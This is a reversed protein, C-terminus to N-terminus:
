HIMEIISTIKEAVWNVDSWIFPIADPHLTKYAFFTSFLPICICVGCWIINGTIELLDALVSPFWSLATISEVFNDIYSFVFAFVLLLIYFLIRAFVYVAIIVIIGADAQIGIVILAVSALIAPLAITHFIESHNM